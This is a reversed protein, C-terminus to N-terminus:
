VGSSKFEEEEIESFPIPEAEIDIFGNAYIINDSHSQKYENEDIETCNETGTDVGIANNRFYILMVGNIRNPYRNIRNRRLTDIYINELYSIFTFMGIVILIGFACYVVIYPAETM